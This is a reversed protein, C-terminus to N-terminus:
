RLRLGFNVVLSIADSEADFSILYTGNTAIIQFPIKIEVLIDWLCTIRRLNTEVLPFQKDEWLILVDKTISQKLLAEISPIIDLMSEIFRPNSLSWYQPQTFPNLLKRVLRMEYENYRNHFKKKPLGDLFDKLYGSLRIREKEILGMTIGSPLVEIIYGQMPNFIFKYMSISDMECFHVIIDKLNTKIIPLMADDCLIYVSQDISASLMKHLTFTIEEANDIEKKIEISEWEIKGWRTLPYLAEFLVTVKESEHHPLLSADVSQLFEALLANTELINKM